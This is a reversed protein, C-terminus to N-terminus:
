ESIPRVLRFGRNNAHATPYWHAHNQDGPNCVWVQYNPDTWGGGRFARHHHPCDYWSGTWEWVNGAMDYAGFQSPSDTTQFGEYNQGNYFGVPTTGEDWPDGSGAYNGMSGDYDNGWPFTYGTNGRAAKEWEHETPLRLLGYHEAFKWAGFWSVHICPHNGYGETVIFTTGNWSITGYNYGFEPFRDLQFLYYNGMAYHEDGTYFGAVFEGGDFWVEGTEYAEILFEAYQANTVLYKMIEYDYDITLVTDGPGYTYDGAPVTVFEFPLEGAIYGTAIVKVKVDEDFTDNYEWGINWVIVKGIEPGIGMGCDGTVYNTPTYTVGGDFSVEINVIFFTFLTDETLDYTIDVQKSGDTRQAATVNTVEAEQALAFQFIFALPFLIKRM